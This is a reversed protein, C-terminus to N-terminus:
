EGEGSSIAARRALGSARAASSAPSAAAKALAMPISDGLASNRAAAAWGPLGNSQAAHPPLCARVEGLVRSPCLADTGPLARTGALSQGLSREAGVFDDHGADIM